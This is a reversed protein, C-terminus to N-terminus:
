PAVQGGSVAWEAALEEVVVTRGAEALALLRAVFARPVMAKSGIKVAPFKRADISRRITMDSCGLQAAAERITLLPHEGATTGGSPLPRGTGSDPM